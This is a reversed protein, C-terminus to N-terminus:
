EICLTVRAGNNQLVENCGLLPKFPACTGSRALCESECQSKQTCEKGSDGTTKVCTRLKSKAVAMWTGGKRECAIQADLKPAAPTEVPTEAAVPQSAKPPTKVPDPLPGEAKVPDPLPKASADDVSLVPATPLPPADLATVEIDGGTIASVAADPRSPALPNPLGIQCAAMLLLSPLLLAVRLTSRPM